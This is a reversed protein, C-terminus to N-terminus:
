FKPKMKNMVNKASCLGDSDAVPRPPDDQLVEDDTESKNKALFSTPKEQVVPVARYTLPPKTRPSVIPPQKTGPSVIPPQKTGPSVIPPKTGSSVIPPQKTGPSVIPPQKTGPSVIPPQKAETGFNQPPNQLGAATPENSSRRKTVEVAEVNTGALLEAEMGQSGNEDAQGM